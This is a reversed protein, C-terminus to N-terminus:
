LILFVSNFTFLILALSFFSPQLYLISASPFHDVLSLFVSWYVCEMHDAYAPKDVSGDAAADLVTLVM